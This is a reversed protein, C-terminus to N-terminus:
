KGNVKSPIKALFLCVADLRSAVGKLIAQVDAVLENDKKSPTIEAIWVCAAAVASLARMLVALASVLSGVGTVIALVKSGVGWQLVIFSLIMQITDQIEM